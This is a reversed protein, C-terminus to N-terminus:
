VVVLEEDDAAARATHACRTNGGAEACTHGNGLVKTIPAGADNAAAHGFFQQDVRGVKGFVKGIGLAKAPGHPGGFKGPGLQDLGLVLFDSAQTAQVFVVQDAGLHRDHMACRAQQICVRHRDVPLLERGLV